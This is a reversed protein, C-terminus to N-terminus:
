NYFDMVANSYGSRDSIIDIGKKDIYKELSNETHKLVLWTIIRSLQALSHSLTNLIKTITKM